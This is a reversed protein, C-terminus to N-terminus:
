EDNQIKEKALIDNIIKIENDLENITKLIKNCFDEAIEKLDNKNKFLYLAFEVGKHKKNNYLDEAFVWWDDIYSTKTIQINNKEIIEKISPLASYNKQIGWCVKKISSVPQIIYHVFFKSSIKPDINIVNGWSTSQLPIYDALEWNENNELSKELKKYVYNEFFDNILYMRAYKLNEDIQSCESRYKEYRYKGNDNQALESCVAFNEAIFRVMKENIPTQQKENIVENVVKEYQSIIAKFDQLNEAQDKIEKIWELIEKEYSICKFKVKVRGLNYVWNKIGVSRNNKDFVSVLENNKIEFGYGDKKLSDDSPNRGKPSLYIVYIKNLIAQASMNRKEQKNKEEIEDYITKIYRLLQQSQDSADIKNEIIIHKNGDTIYIDINKYERCVEATKTNLKFDELECVSIFKDLFFENQCHSNASDVKLLSAIFRSHVKVESRTGYLERFINYNHEGREKREKEKQQYEDYIDKFGAFVKKYEEKIKM